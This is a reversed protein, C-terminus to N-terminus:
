GTRRRMVAIGAGVDPVDLCQFDPHRTQLTDIALKVSEAGTDHLTVFASSTLLPLFVEFDGVVAECSHDADIHLYDIAIRNKRFFKRGADTTLSNIVIVDRFNSRFPGDPSTWGDPLEPSGFGAEPLIADVLYTTSDDMGMDRQALRMLSPVFGGGSGLCVCTRARALCAIVYYLLGGGLDGPLVGHGQCFPMALLVKATHPDTLRM